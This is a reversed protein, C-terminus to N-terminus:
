HFVHVPETLLFKQRVAPALCPDKRAKIKSQFMLKEQIEFWGAKPSVRISYARRTRLARLKSWFQVHVSRPNWKPSQRDQLEKAEVPARLKFLDVHLCFMWSLFTSPPSVRERFQPALFVPVHCIFEVSVCPSTLKRNREAIHGGCQIEHDLRRFCKAQRSSKM